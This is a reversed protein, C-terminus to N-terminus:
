GPKRGVVLAACTARDLATFERYRRPMAAVEFTPQKEVRQVELIEFGAQRMHAIHRSLPERNILSPLRGRILNWFFDSYKWHGDWNRATGHSAFDINHALICGPRLSNHMEICTGELDDIHELVSHSYVMDISELFKVEPGIVYRVVDPDNGQIAARLRHVRQPDLIRGLLEESYREDLIRYQSFSLRESLYKVIKDFVDLNREVSAHVFRDMAVYTKAGLLLFVFGAGLSAGPGLEAITADEVAVGHGLAIDVYKLGLSYSYYADATGGGTGKQFDIFGHFPLCSRLGALLSRIQLNM